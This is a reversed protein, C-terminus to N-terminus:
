ADKDKEKFVFTGFNDLNLLPGFLLDHTKMYKSLGELMRDYDGMPIVICVLGDKEKPTDNFYVGTNMLEAQKGKNARIEQIIRSKETRLAQKIAADKVEEQRRQLEVPDLVGQLAEIVETPFEISMGEGKIDTDVEGQMEAPPQSKTRVM